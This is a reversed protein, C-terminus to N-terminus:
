WDCFRCIGLQALCHTVAQDPFPDCLLHLLHSPIDQLLGCLVTDRVNYSMVWGKGQTDGFGWTVNLSQKNVVPNGTSM